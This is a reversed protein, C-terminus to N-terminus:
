GKLAACAHALTDAVTGGADIRYWRIPGLDYGSQHDVIDPTADSADDRRAAVRDRLAGTGASLWLGHFGCGQHLAVQEIADREALKSFVADVIVCTHAALAASAKAAVQAYVRQTVAQTYGEPGLRATEAVGFLTKREVDSRLVLVTREVAILAGLAQALRSKGTGSLGGIAILSGRTAPCDDTTM